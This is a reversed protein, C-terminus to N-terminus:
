QKSSIHHKFSHALPNHSQTTVTKKKEDSAVSVTSQEFKM